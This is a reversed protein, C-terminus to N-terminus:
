SPDPIADFMESLPPIESRSAKRPEEKVQEESVAGTKEETGGELKGELASKVVSNRIEELDEYPESLTILLDAAAYAMVKEGEGINGPGQKAMWMVVLIQLLSPPPNPLHNIFDMMFSLCAIGTATRRTMLPRKEMIRDVRSLIGDDYQTAKYREEIEDADCDRGPRPPPTDTVQDIVYRTLHLATSEM